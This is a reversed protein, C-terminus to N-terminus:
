KFFSIDGQVICIKQARTVIYYDPKGNRDKVIEVREYPKLDRLMDIIAQETTSLDNLIM